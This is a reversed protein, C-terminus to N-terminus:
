LSEDTGMSGDPANKVGNPSGAGQFEDQQPIDTSGRAAM